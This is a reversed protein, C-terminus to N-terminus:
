FDEEDGNGNTDRGERSRKDEYNHIKYSASLTVMPAKRTFSSHSSFNEGESIFEHKASGFVDRVQLTFILAKNLMEQRLGLNLTAYGERSGQASVSPSNYMANVQLRTNKGLNLTNNFRGNWNFSERSFDEGLLQGEIRYQYLNAMLNVNWMRILNHNFMFESGFTHAEGTNAFTHLTVNKEYVTRVREINNNTKRYYAELSFISKGAFLQYGLEYADIYEPKLDPNGRRVNYADRWTIFPEFSYGRPREIRRTYSLMFQQKDSLKFSSHLTPFYDWRKLTFASDSETPNFKRNTYEGRLGGQFGFKGLEFAYLSYLAHIDRDYIIKSNFEPLLEYQTSQDSYEYLYTIDESHGLRSQYGAEFKNKKGIPLTYDLKMRLPASPGQETTKRGSIIQENEDQLEDLSEEDSERSHYILQGVIQHGKEAFEHRYDLNIAWFDGSRESENMSSYYNTIPNVDTWQEYDLDSERLMSRGGFRFGFSLNDKKSMSYDFGGKIGYTRRLRDSQGESSIFSTTDAFTTHRAETQSGPYRRNNFDAGVYFNFKKVRYNLKFDIGYKDDLGGNVNVIGNFGNLADKKTIINIIGSTGDPDFKASPNTIIEIDEIASAPIQQLVESPELITPKHDVLVLFSASGRLAVNGEIDVTISPINELVDAATGSTATQHQSVNIVKKDILYTMVPKEAVVEIAATKSVAETLAVEGLDIRRQNRGIRLDHLTESNFGMYKIEMYYSGPRVPRILFQGDESTVTGSVQSSDKESYLIIYAYEIALGDIADVISGNIMGGSQARNPPQAFSQGFSIVLIILLLYQQTFGKLM